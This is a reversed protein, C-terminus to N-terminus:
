AGGAARRPRPAPPPPRPPVQSRLEGEREEQPSAALVLLRERLRHVPEDPRPDDEFPRALVERERVLPDPGVDVVVEVLAAASEQVPVYPLGELRSATGVERRDVREGSMEVESLDVLLRDRVVAGGRLDGKPRVCRLDGHLVEAAGELAVTPQARVVPFRLRVQDDFEGLLDIVDAPELLGLAQEALVEGPPAELGADGRGDVRQRLEVQRLDEGVLPLPVVGLDRDPLHDVRGGGLLELAMGGDEDGHVAKEPLRQVAGAPVRVGEGLVVLLQPEGLAVPLARARARPSTRRALTRPM